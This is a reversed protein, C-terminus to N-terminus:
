SDCYIYALINSQWGETKAALLQVKTMAGPNMQFELASEPRDTGLM